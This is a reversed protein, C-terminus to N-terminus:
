LNIFNINSILSDKEDINLTAISAESKIPRNSSGPNIFIINNKVMLHPRHTHGTILVDADNEVAFDHLKRLDSSLLTGHNVVIKLNGIEVTETENLDLRDNNGKVAIVPVSQGLEDLVKQHTIDGMHIILDVNEFEDLIRRSLVGRKQSVHTDSILGILM